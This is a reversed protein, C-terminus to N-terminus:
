LSLNIKTWLVRGPDHIRVPDAPYGFDASGALNLHESYDHDFLNDIGATLQVRTNVKWAANLAMVGFGPTPGIDRSSVNGEGLAVRSQRMSGRLLAGLVWRGHEWSAGLTANTPTMQPLWAHDSTNAGWANAVTATLTWQKRPHWSAGTEFGRIHADINRARTTSGMMGGPLYDFLIYDSIRGAYANIWADLRATRYRAGVDLQTTREPRLGAFANATGQPGAQASFLEWYDPMRSVHGIGAFWSAHSAAITREYRAFGGHLSEHRTAGSTPNRMGMMGSTARLDTVRAEDDRLGTVVRQGPAPTWTAEAFVGSNRFRADNSWTMTATSFNRHTSRQFDVGATVGFKATGSDFAVRGGESTRAVTAAMPMPMPGQPNPTRLTFNDMVHIAENRYLSAEIGKIAGTMGSRSFRLRRSKREFRVGDMGRGAYRAWGDGHGGSLELVTDTDPTWGIAADTSWKNWASPVRAGSGDRYDDAHSHNGSVRLYAHPMGATIDAVSDRRGSSGLLASATGTVGPTDFAVTERLFRVTGASTGPGWLVTQPGKTVVLRDYTEPTVYSMANDMRAPCGGDLVGDNSMLGIRSGFMGRLVPDGNTGGNRLASFGPITKLVDTGDSAPVPQRPRKPDTEFRLPANPALGTVIVSDLVNADEHAHDVPLTQASLFAPLTACIAVALLSARPMAQLYVSM